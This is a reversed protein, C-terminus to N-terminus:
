PVAAKATETAAGNVAEYFPLLYRAVAPNYSAAEVAAALEKYEADELVITANAADVAAAVKLGQRVGAIGVGFHKHSGVAIMLFERMTVTRDKVEKSSEKDKSEPTDADPM